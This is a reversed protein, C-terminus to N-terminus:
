GIRYEYTGIRLTEGERLVAKGINRIPIGNVFTGNTSNLDWVYLKGKEWMVKCHVGSLKMDDGSLIIDAPKRRGISYEKGEQLKLRYVIDDYGIASLKLEYGDDAANEQRGDADEQPVPAEGTQEPESEAKQAKTEQEGAAAAEEAENARPEEAHEQQKKKKSVIVIVAVAAVAFVAIGALIGWPHSGSNEEATVPLQEETTQTDAPEPEETQPLSAGYLEFDDSYSSGATSAFVVHLLLIDKETQIGSVDVTLVLGAAVSDAIAAGIEDGTMDDIVPTYHKGGASSRAFSGLLKGYELQDKSPNQALTAVTYVPIRSETIAKTAEEQTIGSKQEDQGDSFILLCKKSNVRDGVQLEQISSVIGAYLNTDENISTLENIVDELETSDSLCGSSQTNNGLTAIIMNDDPRMTQVVARLTEKALEMQADKMSGSVDVLCYYTVPLQTDAFHEVSLVPVEQGSVTVTFDDPEYAEQQEEIEGTIVYFAEGDVDYGQLFYQSNQAMVGTQTVCLLFIFSFLATIKKM